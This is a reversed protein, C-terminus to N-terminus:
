PTPGKGNSESRTFVARNKARKQIREFFCVHKVAGWAGGCSNGSVPGPGDQLPHQVSPSPSSKSRISAATRVPAAAANAVADSSSTSCTRSPDMWEELVFAALRVLLRLSDVPVRPSTSSLTSSASTADAASPCEELKSDSKCILTTPRKEREKKMESESESETCLANEEKFSTFLLQWSPIWNKNEAGM